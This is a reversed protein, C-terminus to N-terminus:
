GDDERVEWFCCVKGDLMLMYLDVWLVFIYKVDVLVMESYVIIRLELYILMFIYISDVVGGWFRRRMMDVEGVLMLLLVVVVYDGYVVVLKKVGEYVMLLGRGELMYYYVVDERVVVIEGMRRDVVM